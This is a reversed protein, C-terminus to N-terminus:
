ERSSAERKTANFLRQIDVINFMGNGSFDFQHTNNEITADDRDVFLAQVDSITVTGDGNVDEYLGDADPDTPARQRDGIPPLPGGTVTGNQTEPTHEGDDTWVTASRIKVPSTAAATLEFVLTAQPDEGDDLAAGISVTGTENNITVATDTGTLQVNEITAVAPDFTLNASYSEVGSANEVTVPVAVTEGPDVARDGVVFRARDSGSDADEAVVTTTATDTVTDGAATEAVATVTVTYTGPSEYVSTYTAGRTEAEAVGDGNTDWTYELIDGTTNSADFTINKGVTVTSPADVAADFDTTEGSTVTLEVSATDNGATGVATVTATYTGPEGYTYVVTGNTTTSENTGDADVDWAYQDIGETTNTADFRVAQGVSPESRNVTLTLESAPPQLEIARNAWAHHHGLAGLTVRSGASSGNVDTGLAYVDGDNDGFFLRGDVVTPSSEVPTRINTPYTWRVEGSEANLAFMSSPESDDSSGVFVTGDVVTPSSVVQYDGTEYTWVETGSDADLAYVNGDKSGVFLSGNAVTPSSEVEWGTEFAWQQAGSEADLAYVNDDNSGVYVTDNAVTPSSEVAAGTEFAWQQDGSTADLAYVHNDNSGIFVTGDTIVPSSDVRGDTEFTWRVAGTTANLAYVNGNRNGVFVTKGAITPSSHITSITEFEWQKEGSEADLAYVDGGSAVAVTGNVVSPSSYVDVETMYEWKKDGSDADLAYVSRDHSGVFVTGNVVTPSSTVADSAAYTWAAQGAPVGDVTITATTTATHGDDDVVILEVTYTGGRDFVHTITEGQKSQGDISWRYEEISGISDNAELRVSDGVDVSRSPVTLTAELPDGILVTETTTRQQGDNNTVTLSVDYEGPTDYTYEVHKGTADTRGDGTLDWAYTSIEGTSNSADFKAPTDIDETQSATLAASLPKAVTLTRETRNSQGNEDVVTLTVTYNGASDYTHETWASGAANTSGDGFSWNYTAIGVVSRSNSADFQVTDGAILDTRNPIFAPIPEDPDIDVHHKDAWRDTHGLTGLGVRSGVSDGAEVDAVATPSSRIASGTEIAWTSDGASADIAYLTGAESGIYVTGNSVTPSATVPGDATYTWTLDGTAADVAYLDSGESGVYVTGNAVTPSSSIAGGTEVNWEAQGTAADVAYLSNNNTGVYVTGDVVTPSSEVDGRLSTEFSWRIAGTEADIATLTNDITGVYVTEGALTPSSSVPSGVDTAWHTEGTTANVAAVSQDGTEAYLVDDAVTPSGDIPGIDRAWREAGTAADLAHLGPGWLSQSGVYVTGNVITPSSVVGDNDTSFAWQTSGTAADLAYLSDDFSISARSGVYVTGNAVTPSSVVADDTEVSWREEGTAADVALVSGSTLGVYVATPSQSFQPDGVSITADTTATRGESDTVQLEVTYEGAEFERTVTEGTATEGNSFAWEYSQIATAATSGSADLTLKEGAVPAAPSIDIVPTPSDSRRNVTVTRRVTTVNGASGTARVGLEHEGSTTLAYEFMGDSATAVLSGDVLLEFESIERDPHPHTSEAADITIPEDPDASSPASVSVSPEAVREERTAVDVVRTASVSRGDSVGSLTVEYVGAEDLTTAFTGGSGADVATDGRIVSWSPDSVDAPADFTLSDGPEPFTRDVAFGIDTTRAAVTANSVDVATSSTATRGAADRVTLEVQTTGAADFTVSSTVGTTTTETTGDGDTDIAWEYSEISDDATTGSANLEVSEGTLVNSSVDIVPLPPEVSGNTSLTRVPWGQQDTPGSTPTRAYAAQAEANSLGEEVLFPQFAARYSLWGTGNGTKEVTVRFTREDGPKYQSRIDVLHHDLTITEGSANVAESGPRTRQVSVNAGADTLPTVDAVSVNEGHSLSLYSREGSVGAGRANSVVFTVTTTEDVKLEGLREEITAPDETLRVSPNPEKILDLRRDAREYEEYSFRELSGFYQAMAGNSDGFETSSLSATRQEDSEVALCTDYSGAYPNSSVRSLCADVLVARQRLIVERLRERDQEEWADQEQEYLRELEALLGSSNGARRVDDRTMRADLDNKLKQNVAAIQGATGGDYNGTAVQYADRAQLATGVGPVSGLVAGKTEETIVTSFGDRMSTQVTENWPESYLLRDYSAQYSSALTARADASGNMADWTSAQSTVNYTATTSSVAGGGDGPEATVSVSGGDASEPVEVLVVATQSTATRFFDTASLSATTESEDTITDYDTPQISEITADGEVTLDLTPDEVRNSSLFSGSGIDITVVVPYVGGPAFMQSQPPSIDATQAVGTTTQGVTDTTGLDTAARTPAADVVSAATLPAAVTSVIVLTVLAVVGFQSLASRTM